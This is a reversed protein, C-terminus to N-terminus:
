EHRLAVMVPVKAARRAPLYCAVLALAALGAAVGGFTMWHSADVLPVFRSLVRSMLTSVGLGASIGIAVLVLGEGLILRLVDRTRAGLAVRIGIERTRLSAGYSVVGYVGVIALILGLLGMGGAQTAGVRFILFGFIGKLLENMTRLDSIPLDPALERIERELRPALAAPNGATRVHLTRMSQERTVPLYLYPRPSEFVMVYKSDRAVGVVELIQDTLNHLHLRKGIPDQGPWYKAAMSENVIAVRRTTSTYREDDEAFARGRVIPIGMTAFYNHGVHNLFTMPPQTNAERPRGEIYVAGGTILHSMPTTFALAVSEVGPWRGVRRELEEYFDDTQQESYGIQKPDLRVTILKDADFGLDVLQASSLTRLFLGAVV